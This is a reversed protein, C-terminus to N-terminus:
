EMKWSNPLAKLHDTKLYATLSIYLKSGASFFIRFECGSSYFISGPSWPKLQEIILSVSYLSKPEASLCLWTLM